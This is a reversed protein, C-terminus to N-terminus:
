PALQDDDTFDDDFEVPCGYARYVDEWGFPESEQAMAIM